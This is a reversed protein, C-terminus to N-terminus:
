RGAGRRNIATLSNDKIFYKAAVRKVDDSTVLKLADLDTMISRWGRHLEARGVSGALGSSSSLSRIFQAEFRNKAKQIEDPTVGDKKVKDIEVWIEKELDEPTVNKDQRPTASFAFAGVYWQARSSASV